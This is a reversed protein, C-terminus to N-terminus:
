GVGGERSHESSKDLGELYSDEHKTHFSQSQGQNPFLPFMSGGRRLTLRPETRRSQGTGGSFPPPLIGTVTLSVTIIHRKLSKPEAGILLRYSSRFLFTLFFLEAEVSPCSSKQSSIWGM